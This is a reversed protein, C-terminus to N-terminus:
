CLLDLVFCFSATHVSQLHHLFTAFCDCPSHCEPWACMGHQYLAHSGLSTATNSNASPLAGASALQVVTAPNVGASNLVASTLASLTNQTSSISNLDLPATLTSFSTNSVVNSTPVGLAPLGSMMSQWLRTLDFPASLQAVKEQIAMM